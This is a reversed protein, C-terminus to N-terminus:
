KARLDAVTLAADIRFQDWTERHPKGPRWTDIYYKWSEEPDSELSPLPKPHTYLLLRAFVTALADDTTLCDYCDEGRIGLKSIVGSIIHKTAPHKMVGKVGGGNEFQYFGRAPGNIQKRYEFRSEQKGITLLMAVAEPTNMKEPLLALGPKIVINLADTLNM